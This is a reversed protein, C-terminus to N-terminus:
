WLPWDELISRIPTYLPHRPSGNQTFGLCQLRKSIPVWIRAARPAALQHAGWAAVCVKSRACCFRIMTDNEPGVVDLGDAQAKVLERPDTARWAFLNVVEIGDYGWERTFSLCRRITPDDRSADATSPNLMIWAVRPGPGWVRSLSYRYLGCESFTADRIINDSQPM